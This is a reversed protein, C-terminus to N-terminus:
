ILLTRLLCYRKFADDSISNFAPSIFATQCLKPPQQVTKGKINQYYKVSLASFVSNAKGAHKFLNYFETTPTHRQNKSSHHSAIKKIHQLSDSNPSFMLLEIVLLHFVYIATLAAVKLFKSYSEKNMVLGWAITVYNCWMKNVYLKICSNM